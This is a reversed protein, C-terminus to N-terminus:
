EEAAAAAVAAAAQQRSRCLLDLKCLRLMGELAGQPVTSKMGGDLLRESRVAGFHTQGGREEGRWGGARQQRTKKKDAVLRRKEALQVAKRRRDALAQRGALILAADLAGVEGSRFRTRKEKGGWQRKGSWMGQAVM